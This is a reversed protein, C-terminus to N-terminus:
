QKIIDRRRHRRHGKQRKDEESGEGDEDSVLTSDDDLVNDGDIASGMKKAGSLDCAVFLALLVVGAGIASSVLMMEGMGMGATTEPLNAEDVVKVIEAADGLGYLIRVENKFSEVMAKAVAQSEKADSLTVALDIVDTNSTNSVEISNELEEYSRDVGTKELVPELVKRSKIIRLYNNVLTADRSSGQGALIITARSEYAPVYILVGILMGFVIGGVVLIWREMCYKVLKYLNM